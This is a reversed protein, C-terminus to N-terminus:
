KRDRLCIFFSITYLSYLFVNAFSLIYSYYEVFLENQQNFYKSFLFLPTMCLHFIGAGISFYFPLYYKLNLIKDSRLIEIYFLLISVILVISGLSLGVSSYNNFFTDSFINHSVAATFYVACLLLIIQRFLPKSMQSRFYLPLFVFEGIILPNYMWINRQFPTDKIFSFYNYDTYYAIVAYLAFFETLFTICLFWVFYKNWKEANKKKSLYYLGSAVALFELFLVIHLLYYIKM